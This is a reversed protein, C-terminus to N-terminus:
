YTSITFSYSSVILLMSLVNCQISNLHYELVTLPTNKDALAYRNIRISVKRPIRDRTGIPAHRCVSEDILSRFYVVKQITRLKWHIRSQM